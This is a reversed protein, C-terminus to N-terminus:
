DRLPQAGLDRVLASVEDAVTELIVADVGRLVLSTGYRGAGFYPYSGIDVDAHRTQIGALGEAVRSEPVEARVTVTILPAGGVLRNRLTDLMARMIAPVGALVFVNGIQYGPATSVSNEILTAGRPVEAMKQRAPTFEGTAYHAGLLRMAEPDKVLPVGFARAVCASTIDDHTPGIGGTTFVYDFNARCHNVTDIVTQEVDPIVRTERLRVGWENLRLAVHKLNVDQTRGSLIENGIIVLCATYVRQNM